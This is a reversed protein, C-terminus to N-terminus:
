PSRQKGCGILNISCRGAIDARVESVTEELWSLVAGAIGLFLAIALPWIFFGGRLAYM